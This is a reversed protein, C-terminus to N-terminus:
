DSDPGADCPPYTQSYTGSDCAVPVIPDLPGAACTTVTNFYRYIAILGGDPGYLDIRGIDISYNGVETFGCGQSVTHEGECTALDAAQTPCSNDSCYDAISQPCGGDPVIAVDVSADVASTAAGNCAVLGWLVGGIM